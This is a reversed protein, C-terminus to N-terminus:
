RHLNKTNTPTATPTYTPTTLPSIEVRGNQGGTGQGGYAIKTGDPSWAVTYVPAQYNRSTLQSLVPQSQSFSHEINWIYVKGEDGAGALVRGNPNWKLDSIRTSNTLSAVLQGTSANWVAVYGKDDGSAILQSVPNWDITIVANSHINFTKEITDLIPNWIFIAGTVDSFVVKSGKSNWAAYTINGNPSKKLMRSTYELDSVYVSHKNQELLLNETPHWKMTTEVTTVRQDLMSQNTLDWVIIEGTIDSSVLKTGDYNIDVSIVPCYHGTFWTESNLSLNMLKIRYPDTTSCVTDAGSAVALLNGDPSFSIGTIYTNVSEQALNMSSAFIVLVTFLLIRSTSLLVRRLSEGTASLIQFTKNFM